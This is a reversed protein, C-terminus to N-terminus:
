RRELVVFSYGYKNKEDAEHSERSIEVWENEDLPPFHADGEFDEDILTLYVRKTFPLFAKYVSAGGIVFIEKRDMAKAASKAAEFASRQSDAFAVFYKALRGPRRSLVVNFRDPLPKGLRRLISEFTKRGMIVPKGATKEKFYRMDAPLHWPLEGDRGIVGNKAVAAIISVIMM